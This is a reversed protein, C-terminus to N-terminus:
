NWPPGGQGYSAKIVASVGGTRIARFKRMEDESGLKIVDGPQVLHGVTTTPATGNVTYRMPADEITLLAINSGVITAATLAVGGATNDVTISEHGTYSAM